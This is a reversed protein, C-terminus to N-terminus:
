PWRHEPAPSGEGDRPVMVELGMSGLTTPISFESKELPGSPTITLLAVGGEM